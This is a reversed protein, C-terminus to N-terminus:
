NQCYQTLRHELHAVCGPETCSTEVRFPLVDIGAHPVGSSTTSRVDIEILTGAPLRGVGWPLPPGGVTASMNGSAGPFPPDTWSHPTGDIRIETDVAQFMNFPDDTPGQVSIALSVFCTPTVTSARYDSLSVAEAGEPGSPTVRVWDEDGPGVAPWMGGVGAEGDGSPTSGSRSLVDNDTYNLVVSLRSSSGSESLSLTTRLAGWYPRGLALPLVWAGDFNQLDPEARATL